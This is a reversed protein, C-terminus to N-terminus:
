TPDTRPNKVLHVTSHTSPARDRTSTFEVSPPQYAVTIRISSWAARSVKLEQDEHPPIVEPPLVSAEPSETVFAIDPRLVWIGLSVAQM